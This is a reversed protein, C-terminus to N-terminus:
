HLSSTEVSMETITNLAPLDKPLKKGGRVLKTANGIIRLYWDSPINKYGKDADLTVFKGETPTQAANEALKFVATGENVEDFM